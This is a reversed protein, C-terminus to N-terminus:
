VQSCVFGNDEKDDVEENNGTCFEPETVTETGIQNGSGDYIPVEHACEYCKSCSSMGIAMLLAIASPLILKKM